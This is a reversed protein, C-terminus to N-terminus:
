AKMRRRREAQYNANEVRCRFCCAYYTGDAKKDCVGLPNACRACRHTLARFYRTDARKKVYRANTETKKARCEACFLREEGEPRPKRCGPCVGRAKLREYQEKASKRHIALCNACLRRGPALSRHESCEPCRGADIWRMRKAGTLAM